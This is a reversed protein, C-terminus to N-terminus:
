TVFVPFAFGSAIQEAEIQARAVRPLWVASAM